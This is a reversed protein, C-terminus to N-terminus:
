KGVCFSKFVQNLVAESVQRGTMQCLLSLAEKLKYIVLEYEVHKVHLMPELDRLANLFTKLLDYQRTNLLCTISQTGMLEQIKKDIKEFLVDINKSEKASVGILAHNDRLSQVLRNSFNDSLDIKNQVIIVKSGYRQLIDQYADYAQDSMDLSGDLVLLIIDALAAEHLSRDIGEQEICDQTNRIGATDVFTVYHGNKSISAEITDRTTGPTATVIARNKNILCNFLSSKGVNVFGILAVKIGEKIYRQKDYSCLLADIQHIVQQLRVQVDGAFEMEEELFEFSAECLAMMEVITVEIRAIESSLSGQLQSLSYKLAQTSQAHILDNIAEAQLLDMKGNLVARQTFEGNGALRAGCALVRDIIKQILFQNNHCTIEVVDQGTFTKPAKMVLFMVQDITEYNEDVVYGYHITHSAVDLLNKVSALKSCSAAIAIADIGSLRILAVAGSGNGSCCAVITQEHSAQSLFKNQITQIM